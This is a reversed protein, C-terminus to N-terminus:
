MGKVDAAPRCWFGKSELGFIVMKRIVAARDLMEIKAHRDVVALVDEPLSTYIQGVMTKKKRPPPLKRKTEM